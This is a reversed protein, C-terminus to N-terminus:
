ANQRAEWHHRSLEMSRGPVDAGRAKSHHVHAGVDVFGLKTLVNRSAKNDVFHSSCILVADTTAFHNAIIASAAETAFGQGWAAPVLWYGLEKDLGMGGILDDHHWIAWTHFRGALNEGIFWEADAIMYPYPVVTLWKSIEYDNIATALVPADEQRLARLLLRETRLTPVTM